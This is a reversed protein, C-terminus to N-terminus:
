SARTKQLKRRALLQPKGLQYTEKERLLWAAFHDIKMSSSHGLIPWLNMCPKKALLAWCDM